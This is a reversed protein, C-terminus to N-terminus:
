SKNYIKVATPYFSNTLRKCGKFARLRVNSPLFNFYRHAPHEIESMIKKTKNKTREIFISDLSKLETGIIKEARRVISNLKNQEVQTSRSFWVTISSTLVSEIIARYFSILIDKNVGYLQLKRLFYLRQRAKKLIEDTNTCWKLDNSVHTGLFKFINVQEVSEGNIMLPLLPTKNRRFDIIMEKTKSVNLSLNNENCWNVLGVIQDRYQSEDDNSIFGTVTTDDAYKVVLSNTNEAKCDYTMLSYLKPSLPCGQPTGTSLVLPTSTNAGIKVVQPRNVLFSLVWNCISIPLKLEQVLKKYLKSPIITNFASSYDIFLVRAYSKPTELHQLIEHVNIAIADDIGRKEKYAFQFPDLEKPLFSNLFRLVIKEFTKMIASTLAVPRYDNLCSISSKKPVPVITAKKMCAPVVCIKLSWMFINTFVPALQPACLRLYRPSIGDPGAGKNPKLSAFARRVDHETIVFPAETDDDSRPLPSPSSTNDRDFRAYFENLKDPLTVDSQDASKRPGKYNTILNMNSWMDSANGSKFKEEIRDRLNNKSEIIVKNLDSKAKQYSDPDDKRSRYAIDKAVISNRVSKCFWPKSNPYQMVTKTPLCLDRCFHLYDIVIDTYECINADHKFVNM